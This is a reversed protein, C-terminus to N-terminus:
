KEVKELNFFDALDNVSVEQMESEISKEGEKLKFLELNKLNDNRMLREDEVTIVDEKIVTTSSDEVSKRCYMFSLLNAEVNGQLMHKLQGLIVSIQEPNFRKFLKLYSQIEEVSLGEVDVSNVVYLGRVTFNILTNVFQKFDFQMKIKYLVNVYEVYNETCYAEYFDFIINDSVQKFETSVNVASADGRTNLVTELNNLSDRVVNDSRASIMRL